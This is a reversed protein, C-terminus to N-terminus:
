PLHSIVRSVSEIEGRTLFPYIPFLVGRLIYPIAGPLRDFDETMSFGVVDRFAMEVPVSYKLAFKIVDSPRSDLLVPFYAGNPEFDISAMGFLRHDTQQLSQRYAAFIERRRATRDPLNDLQVLALACNLDPLDQWHREPGAMEGLRDALEKTKVGVFAGGAASVPDDEEMACIVIDGASGAICQERVSGISQTVDEIVPLGFQRYDLAYPISGYPDHVVLARAGEGVAAAASEIGLCGNERDIDCVIVEFGSERAVTAYLSPALASVAIKAGSELGALSFAERIAGPVARLAVGDRLCLFACLREILLRRKQGPGIHEDVLTQLVSDMDKRTITPKYFEIQGM